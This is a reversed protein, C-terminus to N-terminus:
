AGAPEWPASPIDASSAATGVLADFIVHAWADYLVASPHFQDSSLVDRRGKIM